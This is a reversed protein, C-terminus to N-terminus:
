HRNRHRRRGRPLHQASACDDGPHLPAAAGPALRQGNLLTGNSSNEDRVFAASAERWVTAHLRSARADDVVIQCAPDRGIRVPTSLPYRKPGIVLYLASQEM